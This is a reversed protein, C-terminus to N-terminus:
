AINTELVLLPKSVVAVVTTTFFVFHVFKLVLGTVLASLRSGIEPSPGSYPAIPNPYRSGQFCGPQYAVYTYIDGWGLPCVYTEPDHFEDYCASYWSTYLSVPTGTCDDLGDAFYVTRFGSTRGCGVSWVTDWHDRPDNFWLDRAYM